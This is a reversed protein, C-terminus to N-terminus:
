MMLKMFHKKISNKFFIKFFSNLGKSIKSPYNIEKNKTGLKKITGQLGKVKQIRFCIEHKKARRISILKM